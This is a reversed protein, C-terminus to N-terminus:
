CDLTTQREWETLSRSYGNWDDHKLKLYSALFEKGLGAELVSSKELARL